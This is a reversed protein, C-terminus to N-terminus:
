GTCLAGIRAVKRGTHDVWVATSDRLDPVLLRSGESPWQVFEYGALEDQLASAVWVMAQASTTELAFGRGASFAGLDADDTLTALGIAVSGDSFM